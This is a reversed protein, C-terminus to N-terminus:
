GMHPPAFRILHAPTEWPLAEVVVPVQAEGQFLLVCPLHTYLRRGQSVIAQPAPWNPVPSRVLRGIPSLVTSTSIANRVCAHEDWAPNRALVRASELLDFSTFRLSVASVTAAAHAGSAATSRTPGDRGGARARTPSSGSRQCAANAANSHPAVGGASPTGAPAALPQTRMLCTSSAYPATTDVMSFSPALNTFGCGQVGAPVACHNFAPIQDSVGIAPALAAAEFADPSRVDEDQASLIAQSPQNSQCASGADSSKSLHLNRGLDPGGLAPLTSFTADAAYAFPALNTFGCGQVGASAAICDSAVVQGTVESLSGINLALNALGGGQVGTADAPMDTVAPAPRCPRQASSPSSLDKPRSIQEPGPFWFQVSFDWSVRLRGSRQNPARLASKAPVPVPRADTAQRSSQNVQIPFCSHLGAAPSGISPGPLCSYATCTSPFMAHTSQQVDVLLSYLSLTRPADCFVESCRGEGAPLPSLGSEGSADGVEMGETLMSDMRERPTTCHPADPIVSRVLTQHHWSNNGTPLECGSEAEWQDRYFAPFVHKVVSGPVDMEYQLHRAYSWAAGIMPATFASMFDSEGWVSHSIALSLPDTERSHSGSSTQPQPQYGEGMGGRMAM